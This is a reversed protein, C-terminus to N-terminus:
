SSLGSPDQEALVVAGLLRVGVRAEAHDLLVKLCDPEPMGDDDILSVLDAGSDVTMGCAPM